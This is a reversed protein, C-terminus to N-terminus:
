NTLIFVLDTQKGSRSLSRIEVTMVRGTPCVWGTPCVAKKGCQAKWWRFNKYMVRSYM